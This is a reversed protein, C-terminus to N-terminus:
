CVYESESERLELVSPAAQFTGTANLSSIFHQADIHTTAMTGKRFDLGISGDLQHWIHSAMLRSLVMQGVNSIRLSEAGGLKYAWGLQKEMHNAPLSEYQM